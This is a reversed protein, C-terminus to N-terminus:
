CGAAIQQVVANAPSAKKRGVSWISAGSVKGTVALTVLWGAARPKVTLLRAPPGTPVALGCSKAFRGVIAIVLRYAKARDIGGRANAKGIPALRPISTAKLEIKKAAPVIVTRLGRKLPDVSVAGM